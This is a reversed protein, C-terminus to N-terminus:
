CPVSRGQYQRRSGNDPYDCGVIAAPGSFPIGVRQNAPDPQCDRCSYLVMHIHNGSGICTGDSVTGIADGQNVHGGSPFGDIHSLGVRYAPADDISISLMYCGGDTWAVTGSVPSYVTAGTTRGGRAFDLAYLAYDNLSGGPAHDENGRYGNVITWQGDNPDFPWSITGPSLSAQSRQVLGNRTGHPALNSNGARDYVDFSVRLSGAPVGSLEWDCEYMDNRTPRSARCAITWRDPDVGQYWATFNVYDIAPDGQNTPYAHAAFHLRDASVAFNNDPSVWLGGPRIAASPPVPRDAAQFGISSVAVRQGNEFVEARISKQGPPRGVEAQRCERSSVSGEWFTLSGENSERVLRM